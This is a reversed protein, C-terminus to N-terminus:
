ATIFRMVVSPVYDILREAGFELWTGADTRCTTNIANFGDDLSVTFSNGAGMAANIANIISTLKAFPINEIRVGFRRGEDVDITQIYVTGDSAYQWNSATTIKLNAGDLITVRCPTGAADVLTVGAITGEAYGIAM